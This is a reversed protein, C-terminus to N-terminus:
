CSIKFYNNYINNMLGIASNERSTNSIFTHYNHELIEQMSRYWALKDPIAQIKKLATIIASMREFTPLSDYSEDIFGNFTKYGLERLKVLSERNGLIIFPHMAAIPKFTKESIFVTMDTDAVSAESVVSVWSDLCIDKRIRNIYYSDPYEINNQDYILSPLSNNALDVLSQDISIGQLYTEPQKFNYMSILGEQSLNAQVLLSYFWMRHSRSRKNLCNFLRVNHNQKYKIDQDFTQQLGTNTLVIEVDKEFHAYPIVNIRRVNATDNAWKQYQELALLNGSTYILSEPPVGYELCETHIFKWLWNTQYGEHCQDLLLMARGQQLDQLYSQNLYYFISKLSNNSSIPGGAWNHPHHAVGTAIIYNKPRCFKFFKLKLVDTMRSVIPSPPFRRIGSQNLDTCDKFNEKTLYNEFLFIM